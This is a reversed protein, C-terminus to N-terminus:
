HLRFSSLPILIYQLHWVPKPKEWRVKGYEEMGSYSRNEKDDHMRMVLSKINKVATEALGNTELNHASALEHKCNYTRCFDQFESRFLPGADTRIVNPWGYETFWSKLQGTVKSTCTKIQEALWAYGSYIDLIFLWQKGKANFLYVGVSLMPSRTHM